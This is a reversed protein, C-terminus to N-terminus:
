GTRRMAQHAKEHISLKWGRQGPPKRGVAMAGLMGAASLEFGRGVGRDPLARQALTRRDYGLVLVEHQALRQVVSAATTQILSGFVRRRSSKARKSIANGSTTEASSRPSLRT